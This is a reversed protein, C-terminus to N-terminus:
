VREEAVSVMEGSYLFRKITRKTTKQFEDEFIRFKKICKYSALNTQAMRIEARVLKLIGEESKKTGSDNFYIDLQEYDPHILAAVEEGIGKERQIGLVM